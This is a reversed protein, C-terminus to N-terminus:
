LASAAGARQLDLALLRAARKALAMITLTPNQYAANPWCAGDVVLLNPIDWTRCRADVVSDKPSHGMRAGGVEHVLLGPPIRGEFRTTGGMLDVISQVVRHADDLLRSENDTYELRIDALPLGLSDVRTPHLSVRSEYRPLVEGIVVCSGVRGRPIKAVIGNPDIARLWRDLGSRGIHVM